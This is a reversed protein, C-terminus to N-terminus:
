EFVDESSNFLDENKSKMYEEDQGWIFPLISKANQYWKTKAPIEKIFAMGIIDWEKAGKLRDNVFSKSSGINLEGVAELKPNKIEDNAGIEATWKEANTLHYITQAPFVWDSDKHSVGTLTWKAIDGVKEFKMYNSQPINDQSFLDSM